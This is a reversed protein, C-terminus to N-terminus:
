RKDSHLQTIIEQFMSLGTPIIEDPFDYDSHHLAPTETGSGLGFMAAKCQKSFWGFDEGFKLPFPREILELGNQRASKIILENCYNDNKVAPFYEVWELNLRLQHKECVQSLVSQVSQKLQDMINESWTRLTYHIEGYGPSVGYAKEGMTIHVPTLISFNEQYPDTKNLKALEDIIEAISQSPNIGHEPEAAHSERGTLQIILSQVTASFYNKLTIISHLPEGPLNHLAFAYDIHIDKFKEDTLMEFAGKGTEEAPQFLLIIKGSDIGQEELWFTLGAVMVMHGDHGCKHSVGPKTSKYDFTNPESIPLADLECRIMIVPGSESFSYIVALGHGGIEDIIEANSHTSIFEKIRKATHIEQGSLEPYKHLERRLTKLESLM